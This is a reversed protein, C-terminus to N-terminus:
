GLLKVGNREGDQRAGEVGQLDRREGERMRKEHKGINNM